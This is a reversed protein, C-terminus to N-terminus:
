FFVFGIGLQCLTIKIGNAYGAHNRLNVLMAKSYDPRLIADIHLIYTNIRIM